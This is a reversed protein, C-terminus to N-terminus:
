INEHDPVNVLPYSNSKRNFLGPSNDQPSNNRSRYTPLIETSEKKINKLKIIQLVKIWTFILCMIGIATIIGVITPTITNAERLSPLENNKIINFSDPALQTSVGKALVRDKSTITSPKPPTYIIPKLSPTQISSKIPPARLMTSPVPIVSATIKTYNSM